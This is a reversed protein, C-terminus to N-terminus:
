ISIGEDILLNKLTKRARFLGQKVTNINCSCIVAIENHSLEENVKLNLFTRQVVPLLMILENIRNKTDNLEVTNVETVEVDPIHEFLVEKKKRIEDIALNTGIRFVWSKFSNNLDERHNYYNIKKILTLMTEQFVEQAKEISGLMKYLHNILPTELRSYILAFAEEEGEKLREVLENMINMM